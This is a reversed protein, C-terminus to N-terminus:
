YILQSLMIVFGCEILTTLIIQRTIFKVICSKKESPVKLECVM